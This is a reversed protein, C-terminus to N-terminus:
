NPGYSRNPNSLGRGAPQAGGGLAEILDAQAMGQTRVGVVAAMAREHIAAEATAKDAREQRRKKESGQLYKGVLFVAFCFGLTALWPVIFNM